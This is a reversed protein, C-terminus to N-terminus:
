RPTRSACALARLLGASPQAYGSLDPHAGYYTLPSLSLSQSLSLCKKNTISHLADNNEYSLPEPSPQKVRNLKGKRMNVRATHKNMIGKNM